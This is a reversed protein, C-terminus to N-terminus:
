RRRRRVVVFGLAFVVLGAGQSSGTSCGGSPEGMDPDEPDPDGPDTGGNQMGLEVAVTPRDPDNTQVTLMAPSALAGAAATVTLDGEAGAALTMPAATVGAPLDAPQLELPGQGINKVHISQTNSTAFDMRAGEGLGDMEPLELVAPAGELKLTRDIAPLNMSISAINWNVLNIGFITVNFSAAFTLRPAYHVVGDVAVPMNLTSHFGASPTEISVLDELSDVTGGAFSTTNARYTSTMGGKVTINLGGSIGLIPILQGIVDTTLVTVPATSDSVTAAVTAPLRPDFATTDAILLDSPVFPIPIDGQWNIQQGLINANIRAQLKLDAGYAVDLFGTDERGALSGKMGDQWCGKAQYGASVATHGLVHASLRIQAPFGSPIWGTDGGLEAIDTGKYELDTDATACRNPDAGASGATALVLPLAAIAPRLM